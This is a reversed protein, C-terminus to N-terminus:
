ANAADIVVEHDLDPHAMFSALNFKARRDYRLSAVGRQALGRAVQQLFKNPGVTEDRDQVGSGGVLVIIPPKPSTKSVVPLTLTGPAILGDTPFTVDRETFGVPLSATPQQAIVPLSLLLLGILGLTKILRNM